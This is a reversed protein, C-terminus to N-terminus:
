CFMTYWASVDNSTPISDGTDKNEQRYINKSLKNVIILANNLPSLLCLGPTSCTMWWLFWCSPNVNGSFTVNRRKGGYTEVCQGGVPLTSIFGAPLTVTPWLWGYNAKKLVYGATSLNRIRKWDLGVRCGHGLTYNLYKPSVKKLM